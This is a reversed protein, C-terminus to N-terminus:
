GEERARQAEWVSWPVRIMTELDLFDWDFGEPKQVKPGSLFLTWPNYGPVLTIRHFNNRLLLNFSGPGLYRTTEAGTRPDYRQEQYVGSLIFSASWTNPHNHVARDDDGRFFYHLYARPALRVWRLQAPTLKLLSGVAEALDERAPSLYARFLYPDAVGRQNTTIIRGGYPLSKALVWLKEELLTFGRYRTREQEASLVRRITTADYIM